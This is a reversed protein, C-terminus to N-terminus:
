ENKALNHMAQATNFFLTGNQSIMNALRKENADLMDEYSIRSTVKSIRSRVSGHMSDSDVIKQMTIITAGNTNFNLRHIAMEDLVGHVDQLIKDILDDPQSRHTETLTTHKPSSVRPFADILYKREIESFSHTKLSQIINSVPITLVDEVWVAHLGHIAPKGRSFTFERRLFSVWNERTLPLGPKWESITIPDTDFDIVPSELTEAAGPELTM